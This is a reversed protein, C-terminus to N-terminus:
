DSNISLYICRFGCVTLISILPSSYTRSGLSLLFSYLDSVYGDPVNQTLGLYRGDGDDDVSGRM